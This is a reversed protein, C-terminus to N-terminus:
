AAGVPLDSDLRDKLERAVHSLTSSTASGWGCEDKFRLLQLLLKQFAFPIPSAGPHVDVLLPHVTDSGIDLGGLRM